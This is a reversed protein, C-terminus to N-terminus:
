VSSWWYLQVGLCFSVEGGAREEIWVGRSWRIKGGGSRRLERRGLCLGLRTRRRLGGEGVSFLRRDCAVGLLGVLLLKGSCYGARSIM